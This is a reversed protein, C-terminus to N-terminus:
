EVEQGLISYKKGNILIFVQGNEFVKQIEHDQTEEIKIIGYNTKMIPESWVIESESGDAYVSSLGYRYEGNTISDWSTDIYSTGIVGNALKVSHGESDSRYISYNAIQANQGLLSKIEYIRIIGEVSIFMADKGQYNGVCAGYYIEGTGDLVLLPRDFLIDREIDYDYIGSERLLLLHGSGDKESCYGTGMLYDTIKPGSKVLHGQRDYLWSQYDQSLWYGDNAPDHTIALFWRDIATSDIITKTDLDIQYLVSLSETQQLHFSNAYFNTGNYSLAFINDAMELNFSEVLEGDMTYKDFNFPPENWAAYTVYIHEGDTALGSTEGQVEFQKLLVWETDDATWTLRVNPGNPNNEEPDYSATVHNVPICSFNAEIDSIDDEVAFTISFDNSLLQGDRMWWYFEYGEAPMARLTCRDGYHYEGIGEVTGANPPFMSASVVCPEYQPNIDLVAYNNANFDYGNPNLHGLSFYGNGNGGWGWNFHFLDNSDYGDCVFAHGGSGFGYYLVPQQKDLCQKIMSTWTENDYDSRKELRLHRSYSFYRALADSTKASNAYSGDAGYSMDISVGCHFLLTAVAEIETASSSETLSDPMHDWDYHTNGFDILHPYGSITYSHSGWGTSPYGWYHMIQGMAVAACGVEAHGCPANAFTPCLSNYYCGQHWKDRLLPGITQSNRDDFPKENLVMPHDMCYQITSAMELLYDEMQIPIDNPDFRGETSYGIIPPVGDDAAVIVFGNDTNFIHFAPVNKATLYTTSLQIDKTEMFKSAITKATEMDIPRAKSVDFLGCLALCLIIFRKFRM